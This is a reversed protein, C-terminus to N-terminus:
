ITLTKAYDSFWVISNPNRLSDVSLVEEVPRGMLIHKIPVEVKKGSITYPINPVEAVVDPVHRPSCQSRIWNKISAVDVDVEAKVFLLLRENENNVLHIVLSDDIDKLLSLANYIESTGIRVGYRNLTADSRGHIVIGGNPTETAWDGHHWVDGFKSFYSKKYKIFRKDGWLYLPMSIFPKTLVLEGASGIQAHGQDDWIAVPAGLMKCQIEGPVVELEPHGGVFATCVDTGGSLSIVHINPFCKQLAKCVSASLPSGTAGLTRLTPLITSAMGDHHHEVQNQYYVAGHGFHDIQAKQAFHWLVNPDPFIPAGNYLCLTAGCLLSSLAYNWMMWGTTTYWFYREGVHVDQHIALAKLHELIMAGTSHTIAKPKGTTGSSFLVWIPHSFDVSEIHLASINSPKENFEAYGGLDLLQLPQPLRSVLHDVKDKIDYSMGNYHYDMHAWLVKPTLPAFRDSVAEVGFDPSCSSWIAGLTNTALFAAVAEPTNACFASVCDGKGVGHQRLLKQFAIVKSLLAAWSIETYPQNEAQYILAPRVDSYQKFVHYAYSIKSKSFWKTKWFPRAPVAAKDYPEDFTVDFFTAISQWFDSPYDISWKHCQAYDIFSLHYESQLHILFRNYNSIPIRRM